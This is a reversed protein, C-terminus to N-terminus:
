VEGTVIRERIAVLGKYIIQVSGEVQDSYEKPNGAKTKALWLSALQIADNFLKEDVM